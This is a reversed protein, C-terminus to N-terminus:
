DVEELLSELEKYDKKLKNHKDALKKFEKELIKIDELREEYKDKLKYYEDAVNMVALNLIRHRSLRPYARSIDQGIINIHHVLKKVYQESLEGVIVMDEGLLKVNYKHKHKDEAAM